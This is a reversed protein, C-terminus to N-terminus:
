PRTLELKRLYPVMKYYQHKNTGPMFSLCIYLCTGRTLGNGKESRWPDSSFKSKGDISELDTCLKQQADRILSIFTQVDSSVLSAKCTYPRLNNKRNSSGKMNGHAPLSFPSIFSPSWMMLQHLPSEPTGSSASRKSINRARM